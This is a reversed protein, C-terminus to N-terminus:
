RWWRRRTLKGRITLKMEQVKSLKQLMSLTERDLRDATVPEEVRDRVVENMSEQEVIWDNM